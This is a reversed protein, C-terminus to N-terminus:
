RRYVDDPDVRWVRGDPTKVYNMPKIDLAEWGGARMKAHFASVEANTIGRSDAYEFHEIQLAPSPQEVKFPTRLFPCAPREQPPGFVVINQNPTLWAQRRAGLGIPISGTPIAENLAAIEVPLGSRWPEAYYGLASTVRVPVNKEHRSFTAITAATEVPTSKPEFLVYYECGARDQGISRYNMTYEMSGASPAETRIATGDGLLKIRGGDVVPVIDAVESTCKSPLEGIPPAEPKLAPALKSPSLKDDLRRPVSLENSGPVFRAGAAMTGGLIAFGCASSILQETTALNGNYLLSTLEANLAGAPIGSLVSIGFDSRLLQSAIGLRAPVLSKLGIAGASLAGFTIGGILSNKMRTAAFEQRHEEFVPRLLGDFLLGTAVSAQLTRKSILDKAINSELKGFLRQGSFFVGKHLLLFPVATGVMEGFMHASQDVLTTAAPREMFRTSKELDTDLIKDVLQTAGSLPSQVAGWAVARAFEESWSRDDTNLLNPQAISLAHKESNM